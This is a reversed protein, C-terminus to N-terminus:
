SVESFGAKETIRRGLDTLRFIEFLEKGSTNNFMISHYFNDLEHKLLKQGSEDHDITRSEIKGTRVSRETISILKQLMDIKLFKNEQYVDITFSENDTIGASLLNGVSRNDFEIRASIHCAASLSVPKRVSQIKHTNLPSLFLLADLMRLLNESVSAAGEPNVPDPVMLRIEFLCPHTILPICANLAPNSRETHEIRFVTKSEEQLKILEAVSDAPLSPIDLLMVHRSQRLAETLIEMMHIDASQFILVDNGAILNERTLSPIEKRETNNDKNGPDPYFCGTVQFGPHMIVAEHVPNAFNGVFGTKFM